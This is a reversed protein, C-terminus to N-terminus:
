SNRDIESNIYVSYDDRIPLELDVLLRRRIAQVRAGTLPNVGDKIVEAWRVGIGRKQWAPLDNANIGRRFLFENKDALSMGQLQAAAATGSVQEKRL